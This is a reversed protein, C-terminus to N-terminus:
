SVWGQCFTISNMCVCVYLFMSRICFRITNNDVGFFFNMARRVIATAAINDESDDWGVIIANAGFCESILVAHLVAMVVVFLLM